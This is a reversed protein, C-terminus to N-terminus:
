DFSDLRALVALAAWVLQLACILLRVDARLVSWDATPVSAVWRLALLRDPTTVAIAPTDV